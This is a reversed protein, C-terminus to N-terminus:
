KIWVFRELNILKDVAGLISSGYENSYYSICLVISACVIISYVIAQKKNKLIDNCIMEEIAIIIFVIWIFKM